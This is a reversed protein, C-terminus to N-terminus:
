NNRAQLSDCFWLSCLILFTETHRFRWLSIPSLGYLVPTSGRLRLIPSSPHFGVTVQGHRHGLAPWLHQLHDGPSTRRSDGVSSRAATFRQTLKSSSHILALPPLLLRLLCFRPRPGASPGSRSFCRWVTSAAQGDPCRRATPCASFIGKRSPSPPGPTWTDQVHFGTHHHGDAASRTRLFGPMSAPRHSKQEVAVLLCAAFQERASSRIAPWFIRLQRQGPVPAPSARPRYSPSFLLRGIIVELHVADSGMASDIEAVPMARHQLKPPLDLAGTAKGVLGPSDGDICPHNAAPGSGVNYGGLGPRLEVHANGFRGIRLAHVAAKRDRRAISRRQVSSTVPPRSGGGSPAFRPYPLAKEGHLM